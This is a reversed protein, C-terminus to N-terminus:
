SGVYLYIISNNELDIIGQTYGGSGGIGAYNSATVSGGSAGWLEVKYYGSCESIFTQEAGTYDFTFEQNNTYSCKSFDGVTTQIVDFKNTVTYKSSSYYIIGAVFISVSLIITGIKISQGRHQRFRLKRLAKDRNFPHLGM